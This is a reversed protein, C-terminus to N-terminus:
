KSTFKYFKLYFLHKYRETSTSMKLFSSDSSPIDFMFENNASNQLIRFEYCCSFITWTNLQLSM